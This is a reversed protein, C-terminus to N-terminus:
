RVAQEDKGKAELERYAKVMAVFALRLASEAEKKVPKTRGCLGYRIMVEGDEDVEAVTGNDDINGKWVLASM